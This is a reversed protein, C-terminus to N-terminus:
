HHSNSLQHKIKSTYIIIGAFRIAFSSFILFVPYYTMFSIIPPKIQYRFQWLMLLFVIYFYGINNGYYKKHTYQYKKRLTSLLYSNEKPIFKDFLEGFLMPLFVLSIFIYLPIASYRLYIYFNSSLFLMIMLYYKTIMLSRYKSFQIIEYNMQNLRKNM